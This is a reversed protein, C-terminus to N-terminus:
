EKIKTELLDNLYDLGLNSLQPLKKITEQMDVNNVIAPAIYIFAAEKTTPVLQKSTFFLIFTLLLISIFKKLKIYAENAKKRSDDTNWSFTGVSETHQYIAFGTFLAALLFVMVSFSGLLFSFSDLRTLLYAEFYTM